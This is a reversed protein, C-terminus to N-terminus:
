TLFSNILYSLYRLASPTKGPGQGVIHMKSIPHCLTHKGKAMLCNVSSQNTSDTHAWPKLFSFTEPPVMKFFPPNWLLYMTEDAYSLFFTEMLFVCQNAWPLVLHFGRKIKYLSPIFVNAVQSKDGRAVQSGRVKRGTVRKNGGKRKPSNYQRSFLPM